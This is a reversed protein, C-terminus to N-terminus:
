GFAKGKIDGTSRLPSPRLSGSSTLLWSDSYPGEEKCLGATLPTLFYGLALSAGGQTFTVFIERGRGGRASLAPTLPTLQSFSFLIRTLIQMVTYGGLEGSGGM